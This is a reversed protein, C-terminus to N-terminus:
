IKHCSFCLMSGGNEVALHNKTRKLPDHCTICSMNGDVFVMTNPLDAIGTLNNRITSAKVYDTGIPHSAAILTMASAPHADPKILRAKSAQTSKDGHCGLCNLSMEDLKSSRSELMVGRELSQLREETDRHMENRMAIYRGRPGSDELYSAFDCGGICEAGGAQSDKELGLQAVLGFMAAMVVAGALRKNRQASKM